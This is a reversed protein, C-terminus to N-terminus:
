LKEARGFDHVGDGDLGKYLATISLRYNYTALPQSNDRVMFGTLWVAFCVISQFFGDSMWAHKDSDDAKCQCM